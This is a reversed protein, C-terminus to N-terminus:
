AENINNIECYIAEFFGYGIKTKSWLFASQLGFEDYILKKRKFKKFEILIIEQYIEPLQDFWHKPKNVIKTM